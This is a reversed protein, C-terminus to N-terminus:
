LKLLEQLVQELEFAVEHSSHFHKPTMKIFRMVCPLILPDLLNNM